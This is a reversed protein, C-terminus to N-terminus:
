ARRRERFWRSLATAPDEGTSLELTGAGWRRCATRWAAARDAQDSEWAERFSAAGVPAAIAAGTEPDRFDALGAEPLKLDTPDTLRVAAVDHRRCLAAFEREWDLCLFDSLVVVLSRRKLARRAGALARGLASGGPGAPEALAAGILALAHRRGKRPPFVRRVEADFLVGGVREGAREASLAVLAAALAAQDSRRRVGGGSAMSLSRDLVLFVTLEREERYLKIFPQGFRASVNWDISRADDGDEYRRVEDFEIGQGKFISRFDGSLMDDTLKEAVLPFLAIRELLERRTM